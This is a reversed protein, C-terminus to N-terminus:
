TTDFAAVKGDLCGVAVLLNGKRTSTCHMATVNASLTWQGIAAQREALGNKWCRTDYQMLDPGVGAFMMPNDEHLICLCGVSNKTSQSRIEKGERADIFSFGDSTSCAVAGAKGWVEMNTMQGRGTRVQVLPERRDSSVDWCKVIGNNDGSWLKELSECRLANVDTLTHPDPRQWLPPGDLGCGDQSIRSVALVDKSVTAALHPPAGGLEPRPWLSIRRVGRYHLYIMSSSEVVNFDPIQMKSTDLDEPSRADASSVLQGGEDGRLQLAQSDSPAAAGAAGNDKIANVSARQPAKLPTEQLNWSRLSEGPQPKMGASQATLLGFSSTAAVDNVFGGVNIEGILRPPPLVKGPEGKSLEWCRVCSEQWSGTYLRRSEWPPTGFCDFLVCTVGKTNEAHGKWPGVAQGELDRWGGTEVDRADTLAKYSSVIAQFV